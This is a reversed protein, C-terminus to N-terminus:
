ARWSEPLWADPVDFLRLKGKCPIPAPLRRPNALHWGYMGAHHWPSTVECRCDVVDVAGLIAGLPLSRRELEIGHETALVDLDGARMRAAAHILIPGRYATPWSRNEVDKIGRVILEAWPQWVTLCKM